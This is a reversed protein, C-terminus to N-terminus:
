FSEMISLKGNNKLHFSCVTSNHLSQLQFFHSGMFFICTGIICNMLRQDFKLKKGCYEERLVQFQLASESGFLLCVCVEKSM